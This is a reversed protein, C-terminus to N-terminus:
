SYEETGDSASRSNVTLLKWSLVVFYESKVELEDKERRLSEIDETMVEAECKVGELYLNFRRPRSSKGLTPNSQLELEFEEQLGSLYDYFRHSPSKSSAM